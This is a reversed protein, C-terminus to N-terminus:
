FKNPNELINNAYYDLLKTDKGILRGNELKIIKRNELVKQGSQLIEEVDKTLYNGPHNLIFEELLEKGRKLDISYENERILRALIQNPLYKMQKKWSNNISYAVSSTPDSDSIHESIRVPECFDMYVKTRKKLFQSMSPEEEDNAFHSDEPVNEYSIAVPVVVVEVGSNQFAHVATSLLGTKIPMIAGTRSRTGEPYVLSPVGSELMMTSYLMLCELYLSNRTRQRDVAYAGLSKLMWEWFPSSMLNIGAAYRPLPLDLYNLGYALEVSDLHSKHTPTYLLTYKRSLSVVEEVYGDLIPTVGSFRMGSSFFRIPAVIKILSERLAPKYMDAMENVYFRVLNQIATREEDKSCDKLVNWLEFEKQANELEGNNKKKKSKYIRKDLDTLISQSQKKMRSSLGPSNVLHKMVREEMISQFHLGAASDLGLKRRAVLPEAITKKEGNILSILATPPLKRSLIDYLTKYLPIEIELESAIDMLTPLAFAGEVTEHWKTVEREIFAKPSFLLDFRDKITLKDDTKMLENVIKRGFNRNRSNPSTATTIVDALGSRGLLTESTLGLKTGVLSMEAFGRAILEGQLNYGSSPLGDVLGSAIAIPNKLVGAIEIGHADPTWSTHITETSYLKCLNTGSEPNAIGINFYTHYKEYIESLLSPGNIIAVESKEFNRILLEEELFSTFGVKGLKKRVKTSALGKTFLVFLYEEDMHLFEFLTIITEELARSPTAIHFAWSDREFDSFSSTVVVNDPLDFWSNLIKSNRNKNLDEASKKEPLWLHVQDTKKALISVLLLGM